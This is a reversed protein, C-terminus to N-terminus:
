RARHQRQAASRNVVPSGARPSPIPRPRAMAAPWHWTSPASSSSALSGAPPATTVIASGGAHPPTRSDARHGNRQQRPPQPVDEPRCTSFLPAVVGITLGRLRECGCTSLRSATAKGLVRPPQAAPLPAIMAVASPPAVQVCCYVPRASMRDSSKVSSRWPQATPWSMAAACRSRRPCRTAPRRASPGRGSWRRRRRGRRPIPRRAARRCPRRRRDRARQDGGGVAAGAPSDDLLVDGVRDAQRTSVSTAPAPDM